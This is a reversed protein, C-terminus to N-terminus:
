HAAGPTARKDHAAERAAPQFYAQNACPAGRMIRNAPLRVSIATGIGPTSEIMLTGGHLETLQQALPLGLGTGEFRRALRNDVQHFPKLACGIEDQSMGIGTDRVCFTVCGSDDRSASLTVSGGAPTFKVANSLLNIFIQKLKTEDARLSIGAEPLATSLKIEGKVAQARVAGLSERVVADLRVAEERLDLKGAEIKAVDLLNNIIHLLHHGSYHIDAAFSAYRGTDDGFLRDRIMEAFGIIANLPTRLEHSINALFASKARSAEEARRRASVLEVNTEQLKIREEALEASVALLASHEIRLKDREGHLAIEHEVRRTIERSLILAMFLLLALAASGLAIVMKAQENAPALAEAKTMSAVVILPYGQVRRWQVLHQEGNTASRTTYGGSAAFNADSLAQIGTASTGAKSEDLGPHPVYRARVTGDTGILRVSETKGIEINLRLQALFEPDLMFLLVGAFRGDKTDLRKTIPIVVKQSLIPVFPKGVYLGLHPDDRHTRFYERYSLDIPPMNRDVSNGVLKGDAGVVAIKVMSAALVPIHRKWEALDVLLGEEEIRQELLDMADSLNNLTARVLAEFGAAVNAADLRAHELANSRQKMVVAVVLVCIALMISASFAAIRRKLIRGAQRSPDPLGLLEDLHGGYM